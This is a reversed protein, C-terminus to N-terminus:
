EPLVAKWSGKMMEELTKLTDAYKPDDVVNVFEKHDIQHDYLERARINGSKVHKWEIYNYRDTNMSCGMIIKDKDDRSRPYQSFAVKKWPREPHGLL